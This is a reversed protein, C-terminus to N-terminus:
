EGEYTDGPVDLRVGAVDEDAALCLLDLLDLDGATALPTLVRVRFPTDALRQQREEQSLGSETFLVFVSVEPWTDTRPGERAEPGHKLAMIGAPNIKTRLSEPVDGGRRVALAQAQCENAPEPPAPAPQGGGCAVVLWWAGVLWWRAKWAM